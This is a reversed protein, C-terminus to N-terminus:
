ANVLDVREGPAQYRAAWDCFLNTTGELFGVAAGLGEAFKAPDLPDPYFAAYLELVELPRIGTHIGGEQLMVGVEAMLADHDSVPDLGLVRVSGSTPKQFGVLTEVTTTKGAGNPGLLVVVEAPEARFSIDDVATLGGGGTVGYRVTLGDVEIAAM